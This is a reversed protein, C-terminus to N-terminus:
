VIRKHVKSDNKEGKWVRAKKNETKIEPKKNLMEITKMFIESYNTRHVFLEELDKAENGKSVLLNFKEVPIGIDAYLKLEDDIFNLEQCIVGRLVSAIMKEEMGLNELRYVCESVSGTHLTAFVLHGTLAARLATAASLEDRIEGIMIVDPDQRFVHNLAENYSNVNEDVKVQTVGPIVYEPPDELSVIKISNRKKKVLEVLISAITTSKGSGTPGCVVILGNKKEELLSIVALQEKNFGLYEISLPVRETDLLRLVISENERYKEDIVAMSSVRVFLSTKNGYIFHGDQSKRKELVNMGALLKIRQILEYCSEPNIKMETKLRGNIRFRILNKEIHIDSAQKLRAETLITDLLVVAAAYSNKKEETIKKDESGNSEDFHYLESVIKLLEQRSGKEFTIKIEYDFIDPRKEVKRVNEVHNCFARELRCKLEEDKEREILFKIYSGKQEIIGVGNFLCYAPTLIFNFNDHM